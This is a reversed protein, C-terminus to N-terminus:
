TSLHFRQKFKRLFTSLLATVTGLARINHVLQGAEYPLVAVRPWAMTVNSLKALNVQVREGDDRIGSISKKIRIVSESGARKCNAVEVSLSIIDRLLFGVAGLVLLCSLILVFTIV